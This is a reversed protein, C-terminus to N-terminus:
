DLTHREILDCLIHGTLIHGEQIRQTDNSPIIITVDALRNISGGNGGTFVITKLDMNRATQVATVVNPSNGSTTIGILVDGAQGIAEVQRSFISDYDADNTWATLFSTDTTLAISAIPARLHRLKGVLEASLHQSDAASGGNGCWLIKHGNEIATILLEAAQEIQDLGQEAMQNKTAASDNIQDIIIQRINM